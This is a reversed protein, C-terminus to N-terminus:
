AVLNIYEPRVLDLAQILTPVGERNAWDLLRLTTASANAARAMNEMSVRRTDTNLYPHRDRIHCCKGLFGRVRAAHDEFTVDPSAFAM